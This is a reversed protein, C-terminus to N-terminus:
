AGPHQRRVAGRAPPHHATGPGKREEPQGGRCFRDFVKAKLADPIGPGTDEVTVEVTAEQEEVRIAIEVDPGGFKISNGILNTFIEHLLQDAAVTCRCGDYRIRADPVSAIEARIVADLDIPQRDPPDHYIKRITSVNRIIEMSRNVGTLARQAFERVTEDGLETLMELYGMSVTNANHIDHAIIDLYLRMEQWAAELEQQLKAKHIAGGIEKGIAELVRREDETFVHRERSAILLAGIVRDGAVLPIGALSSVGIARPEPAPEHHDAYYPSGEVFLDRYPQIRIDLTRVRGVFLEPLGQCVTLVAREGGDDILYIGGSSFELLELTRKLATRLLDAPGATSTAMGIIQNIISLQRNRSRIEREARKLDTIDVFSAMMCLPTGSWDEVMNASVRACFTSGDRKRGALEGRWEGTRALEEMVRAAEDEAQWFQTVHTGLIEQEDAIGWLDLFARNAYTLRGALDAIAIANISSAIAKEKVHLAKEARTRDTVDVGASMTGIGAM